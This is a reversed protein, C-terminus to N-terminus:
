RMINGKRGAAMIRKEGTQDARQQVRKNSEMADQETTKRTIKNYHHTQSNQGIFLKALIRGVCAHDIITCWKM